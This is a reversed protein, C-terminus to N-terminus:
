SIVDICLIWYVIIKYGISLISGLFSEKNLLFKEVNLIKRKCTEELVRDKCLLSVIITSESFGIFCLLFFIIFFM